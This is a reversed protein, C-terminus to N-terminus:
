AAWRPQSQKIKFAELSSSKTQLQILGPFGLVDTAPSFRTRHPNASRNRIQSFIEKAARGHFMELKAPNSRVPAEDTQRAANCLCIGILFSFGASV